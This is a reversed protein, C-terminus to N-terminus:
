SINKFLIIKKFLSFFLCVEILVELLCLCFLLRFPDNIACWAMEELIHTSAFTGITKFVSCILEVRSSQIRSSIDLKMVLETCFSCEEKERM